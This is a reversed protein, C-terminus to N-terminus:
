LRKYPQTAVRAVWGYMCFPIDGEIKLMRRGYKSNTSFVGTEKLKETKM